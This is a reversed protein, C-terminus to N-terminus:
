QHCVRRLIRISSIKSSIRLNFYPEYIYIIMVRHLKIHFLFKLFEFLKINERETLKEGYIGDTAHLIM